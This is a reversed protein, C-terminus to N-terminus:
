FWQNGPAGSPQLRPRQNPHLDWARMKKAPIFKGWSTTFGEKPGSGAEIVFSGGHPNFQFTILDVRDGVRRLHPMSGTYGMERLAPLVIKKLAADMDERANM